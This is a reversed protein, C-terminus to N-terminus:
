HKCTLLSKVDPRVHQPLIQLDGDGSLYVSFWPGLSSMSSRCLRAANSRGYQLLIIWWRRGSPAGNWVAMGPLSGRSSMSVLSCNDLLMILHCAQKSLFPLHTNNAAENQSTMRHSVGPPCHMSRIYCLCSSALIEPAPCPTPPLM